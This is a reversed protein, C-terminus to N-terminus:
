LNVKKLVNCDALQIHSMCYTTWSIWGGFDSTFVVVRCLYYEYFPKTFTIAENEEADMLAISSCGDFRPHEMSSAYITFHQKSGKTQCQGTEQGLNPALDRTCMHTMHLKLCTYM